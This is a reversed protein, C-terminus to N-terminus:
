SASRRGGPRTVLLSAAVVLDLLYPSADATGVETVSAILCYVTLFLAVARRVGRVHTAAMFLLLAYLSVQTVIGFWGLDVYAAMWNSDLPLGNFSKNSLGTGFAQQLIPRHEAVVAAWVDTRGTLQSAEAASQGRAAWMAIQPAFVSGVAISVVVAVVSARRVRAHGLFLSASAVCLGVILGVTATRTHTGILVGIAMLVAALTQPGRILRCMWLIASTGLLVAAYHAVQTAPMPWLTGSLRAGASFALGPAFAAGVVVSLVLAWL